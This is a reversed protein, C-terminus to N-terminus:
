MESREFPHLVGCEAEVGCVDDALWVLLAQRHRTGGRFPSRLM